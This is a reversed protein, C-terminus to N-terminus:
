KYLTEVPTRITDNQEDVIIYKYEFKSADKPLDISFEFPFVCDLMDIWKGDDVRYSLGVRKYMNTGGEIYNFVHPAQGGFNLVMCRGYEGNHYDKTWKGSKTLMKEQFGVKLDVNEVCINTLGEGDVDVEFQNGNLRITKGKKNGALVIVKSNENLAIRDSDLTIVSHQKDLSQNSFAVYLKNKDQRASLYNLQPNSTQILRQPMWLNVKNGYFDGDKHGYLEVGFNVYSEISVAPFNIKYDSKVMIDSVLYDMVISMAPWIHNYHVSNVNLEPFTHLPFDPKEYVTTRATNMHYGPFNSYRGVMAWNAIKSLFEDNTAHAIKLMYPAFNAWFVVRHSSSTGTGEATLGTESVRWCDVSEEAVKMPEGYKKQQPAIGGKNVLIKGSPIKPCMMIFQAYKRAGVRAAELMRADKTELWARYIEPFRPALSPWTGAIRENKYDFTQSIHDVVDTIYDNVGEVANDLYKKDLTAKYLALQQRWKFVNKMPTGHPYRDWEPKGNTIVNSDILFDSQRGTAEYLAAADVIKACPTGLHNDANQSTPGRYVPVLAFLLDERSLMFECIPMFRENYITENDTIVSLNLFNLSTVNKVATKVDNEYSYGKLESIYWGYQSMGFDIMNDLTTNMNVGLQNDRHYNKMGYLNMALDQHLNTMKGPNVALRVTFKFIDGHRFMSSHTGVIPAWISPQAMGNENRLSVGFQSNSMIPMPQFPFSSPDAVVAYTRGQTEVATLPMACMFSPTLYSKGPFRNQTWVMPQWVETCEEPNVEPSGCFGVSHYGSIGATYHYQLKPEENGEPLTLIALLEGYKNKKFYYYVSNEKFIVRNLELQLPTGVKFMDTEGDWTFTRYIVDDEGDITNRSVRDMSNQTPKELFNVIFKPTFVTTAKEGKNCEVTIEGTTAVQVTYRNNSYKQAYGFSTACFLAFLTVMLKMKKM